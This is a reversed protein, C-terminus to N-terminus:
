DPRDPLRRAIEILADRIDAQVQLEILRQERDNAQRYDSFLM